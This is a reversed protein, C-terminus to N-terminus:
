ISIRSSRIESLVEFCMNKCVQHFLIHCSYHGRRIMPLPGMLDIGWKEFFRLLPIPHLPGNM